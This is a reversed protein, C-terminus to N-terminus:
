ERHSRLRGEIEGGIPKHYIAVVDACDSRKSSGLEHGHRNRVVPAPADVERHHVHRVPALAVSGRKLLGLDLSFMRERPDPIAERFSFVVLRQPLLVALDPAEILHWSSPCKRYHCM